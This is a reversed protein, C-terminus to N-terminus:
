ILLFALLALISVIIQSVGSYESCPGKQLEVKGDYNGDFTVGYYYTELDDANAKGDEVLPLDICYSAESQSYVLSDRNCNLLPGTFYAQGGNGEIVIRRKTVAESYAQTRFYLLDNQEVAIDIRPRLNFSLEAEYVTAIFTINGQYEPTSFLSVYFRATDQPVNCLTVAQQYDYVTKYNGNMYAAPLNNSVTINVSGTGSTRTGNFKVLIAKYADRIPPLAIENYIITSTDNSALNDIETTVMTSHAQPTVPIDVALLACNYWNTGDGAYWHFQLYYIGSPVTVAFEAVVQNVGGQSCNFDALRGADFLIQQEATAISFRCIKPGQGNDHGGGLSWNVTLLDNQSISISTRYIGQPGCPGGTSASNQNDGAFGRPEPWNLWGHGHSYQIIAFLVFLVLLSVRNQRGKYFGEAVAL